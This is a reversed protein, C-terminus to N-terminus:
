RRRALDCRAAVDTEYGSLFHNADALLDQTTATWGATAHHLSARAVFTDAADAGAL